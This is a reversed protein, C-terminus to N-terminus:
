AAMTKTLEIDGGLMDIFEKTTIIDCGAAEAAKRKQTMKESDTVLYDTYIDVKGRVVHGKSKAYAILDDRLIHLGDFRAIGTLVFVKMPNEEDRRITWDELKYFKGQKCLQLWVYERAKELTVAKFKYPWTGETTAVWQVFSTM